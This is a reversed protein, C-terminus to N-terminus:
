RIEIRVNGSFSELRISGGGEGLRTDLSKGPGYEETRVQGAPSQIDGSFTEVQLRGGTGRPLVLTIGGSVSEATFRGNGALGAQLRADGSVSAHALQELEGAELTADGSVTEIAVRGAIAGGLRVDGSVSEARLDRTDLSAEVDGSVSALSAEGPRADRVSVDGSVSGVALRRGAVGAVDVDASVAEVDVSAGRPLTVEIVSPEAGGDGGWGGFWGGGRQPYRVEIRLDRDGGEIALTEVGEGLTGTVHVENRDWTRVVIRGKVNEIAVSGDAALPRREDIPTAALAPLTALLLVPALLRPSM